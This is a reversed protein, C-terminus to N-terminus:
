MNEVKKGMQIHTTQKSPHCSPFIAIQSPYFSFNSDAELYLRESPHDKKIICLIDLLGHLSCQPLFTIHKQM